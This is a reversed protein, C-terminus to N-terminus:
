RALMARLKAWVDAFTVRRAATRVRQALIQRTVAGMDHCDCLIYHAESKNLDFFAVADGLRDGALGEGRLVPDRYAITLPSNDERVLARERESLYEIRTLLKVPGDHRELLDAWRDLRRRRVARLDERGQPQLAIVNAESRIAELPRHKM